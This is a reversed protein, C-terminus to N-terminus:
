AAEDKRAYAAVVRALQGAPAQLVGAMRTAPTQIMAVLGARLEDLSPLKALAQVASADLANDGLGGGIIVLKDNSKAFEVATKAGAVADQSLAVATPGNFLDTLNEYRTGKLAIKALRNKTVRFSAGAAIM